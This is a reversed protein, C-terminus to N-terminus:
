YVVKRVVTLRAASLLLRAATLVDQLHHSHVQSTEKSERGKKHERCEACAFRVISICSVVTYAAFGRMTSVGTATSTVVDSSAPKLVHSASSDSRYAFCQM